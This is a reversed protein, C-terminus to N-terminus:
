GEGLSSKLLEARLAASGKTVVVEGPLVGALLETMVDNRAGPVVKRVHFVKYANPEMYHKDRVFVIHCTGDWHVASSPVVIANQEERLVVRGTGFTNNRLKGDPNNLPIRIPLTRTKDDITPSLTVIKGEALKVGRSDDFAVTQGVKLFRADEERVQLTLVLKTPDAVVFLVKTPDVVEGDVADRTVLMGSKPARMPLLNASSSVGSPLQEKLGLLRLKATADAPSLGELASATIALGFNGLTQEASLIKVEAEAVSAEVESIRSTTVTGGADKLTALTRARFQKQAIAQLLETKAKGVDLADILAVLEGAEVTQGLEKAVWVVRGAVPSSLRTVRAPDFVAEGNATVYEGMFGEGVVAIDLGAKKVSEDSAFLLRREHLKCSKDNATRPLANMAAIVDYKSLQVTGNVQALEPHCTPCESVGHLKCWGFPKPKPMLSPRCEVCIDEPVGHETCWAEGSEPPTPKSLRWEHRHGWWAAAGLAVLVLLTPFKRILVALFGSPTRRAPLHSSTDM